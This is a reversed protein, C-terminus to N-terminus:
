LSPEPSNSWQTRQAGFGTAGCGRCGALAPRGDTSVVWNVQPAFPTVGADQQAVQAGLFLQAAPVNLALLAVALKVALNPAQADGPSGGFRLQNLLIHHTAQLQGQANIQYRVLVSLKTHCLYISM